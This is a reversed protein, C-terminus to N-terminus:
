NVQCAVDKFAMSDINREALKKQIQEHFKEMDYLTVIGDGDQDLIRFWYEISFHTNM